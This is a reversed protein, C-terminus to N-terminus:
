LGVMLSIYIGVQCGGGPSSSVRIGAADGYYLYLRRVLNQLGSGGETVDTIEYYTGLQRALKESMGLGNDKVMFHLHSGEKYVKILLEGRGIKKELGHMIANEVIPQFLLRPIRLPLSSPDIEYTVHMRDGMRRKQLSVYRQIFDMEEQVTIIGEGLDLSSRLLSGLEVVTESAEQTDGLLIYWKITELCNFIFHPKTQSMLSKIESRRLSQEKLKNTEILNKMKGVMTNVSKGLKGFEDKRDIDTQVSFDGSSVKELVEVVQSLPHAANRSVFLALVLSMVTMVSALIIFIVAVLKLLDDVQTLLQYVLITFGFTRHESLAYIFSPHLQGRPIHTDENERNSMIQDLSHQEVDGQLSLAKTFHEDMLIISQQSYEEQSPLLSPVQEAFLDFFVLGELDGEPSLKAQALTVIRRDEPDLSHYYIVPKGQAVLAKRIVGWTRYQELHYEKPTPTTNMVVTFDRDLIHIAPKVERGSLLLYLSDYLSSQDEVSGTFLSDFVEDHMITKIMQFSESFQMELNEKVTQSLFDNHRHVRKYLISKTLGYTIPGVILLPVVGILLFSFLLKYFYRSPIWQKM